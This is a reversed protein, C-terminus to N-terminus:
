SANGGGKRLGSGSGLGSGTGIGSATGVGAGTAIANPGNATGTIPAAQINASPVSRAANAAAKAADIHADFEMHWDWSFQDVKPILGADQCNRAIVGAIWFDREMRRAVAAMIEAEEGVPTEPNANEEEQNEDETEEIGLADRLKDLIKMIM